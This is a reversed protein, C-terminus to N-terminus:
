RDYDVFIPSSWAREEVGSLCDDSPATRYGGYCPRVEICRGASDRTCRLNGANVALTPEQIARVYYIADRRSSEFEPDSFEVRCGSPDGDCSLTRWPDEILPALPEDPRVQPRIRVVEIRTIARREDTPNYCERKCLLELREHGLAEIAYEPCGDAQELAGVARVRFRPEGKMQAEGGMPVPTPANLLDFFLLIRPGSTAYVEKRLLGEWIADRDRGSAHLAVLGGTLWFSAMREAAPLGPPIEEPPISRPEAEGASTLREGLAEDRIGRNETMGDRGFEKYGTGPRAAHNDSSAILGFRFGSPANAETFDRVALAAQVSMGPRYDFAPLFCDRCQGSDLWEEQRQAPVVKTGDKGAGIHHQRALVARRECEGADLDASLCRERIIEGAQWCSPLYPGTPEPCLDRGGPDTRIGRWDRYEESNGHGSYVEIMTQREPDRQEALLQSDWSALRPATSGWTNGHPIVLAEFGWQDLKDFLIRPTDAWEVCNAPLERVGVGQECEPVDGMDRLYRDFNFYRQRNKFDLFPLILRGTGLNATRFAAFNPGGAAIPRLPVRDEETHRFIVNKHGYHEAPTNGVQTWEWGVFAVLDPAPSRGSVQNCQRISEKTERWRRPTLSEAHDNISWFDLGSCFRAFDCADAVSHAGEGHLLPLSWLFADGSFTTHVHLDGFLILKPQARGALRAAEGVREQRATIIREPVTMRTVEGPGESRGFVGLWISGLYSGFLVVGVLLFLCLFKLFARV